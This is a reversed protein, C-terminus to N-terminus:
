CRPRPPPTAGVGASPQVLRDPRQPGAVEGLWVLPLSSVV